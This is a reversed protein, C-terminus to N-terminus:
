LACAVAAGTVHPAAVISFTCDSCCASPRVLSALELPTTLPHNLLIWLIQDLRRAVRDIGATDQHLLPLGRVPRHHKRVPSEGDSEIGAGVDRYAVRLNLLKLKARGDSCTGVDASRLRQLHGHRSAPQSLVM